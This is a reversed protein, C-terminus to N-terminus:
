KAKTKVLSITIRGERFEKSGAFSPGSIKVRREYNAITKQALTNDLTSLRAQAIALAGERTRRRRAHDAGSRLTDLLTDLATEILGLQRSTSRLQGTIVLLEM